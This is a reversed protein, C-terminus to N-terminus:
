CVETGRASLSPGRRAVCPRAELDHGARQRQRQRGAALGDIAARTRVTGDKSSNVASVPEDQDNSVEHIDEQSQSNARPRELRANPRQEQMIWFVGCRRTSYSPSSWM